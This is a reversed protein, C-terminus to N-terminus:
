RVREITAAVRATNVGGREDQSTVTIITTGPPLPGLFHRFENGGFITSATQGNIMVVAGPDTSGRIEVIDGHEVLSTIHLAPGRLESSTFSEVHRNERKAVNPRLVQARSLPSRNLFYLVSAFCSAATCIVLMRVFWASRVTKASFTM